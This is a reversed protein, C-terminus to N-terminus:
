PVPHDSAPERLMDEYLRLLQPVVADEHYRDRYLTLAKSARARADEPDAVVERMARQLDSADDVACLHATTEDLIERPGHTRTAVIPIGSAMAEIVVIGFPEDRSPLVFVDAEALLAGVDTVWGPWEVSAEIGLEAALARLRPAEEGDGALILRATPQDQHLAAFARLLQDFGKKHVLRGYALWRMPPGAAGAESPKAPVLASFNPIVSIRNGPIGNALLYDRQSETTVNFWDVNRYYKLKVYNHLKTVVPVGLQRAAQGGLSAARAMHVHAISSGFDKLCRRVARRCFPDWGGRVQVPTLILGHVDALREQARSARRCIAQVEVGRAALARCLDVFAREAGGFGESLMIQTIKL